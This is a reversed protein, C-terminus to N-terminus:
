SLQSGLNGLISCVKQKVEFLTSKHLCSANKMQLQWKGKPLCTLVTLFCSCQKNRQMMDPLVTWTRIWYILFSMFMNRYIYMNILM